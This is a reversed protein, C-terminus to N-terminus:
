NAPCPTPCKGNPTPNNWAEIIRAVDDGYTLGGDRSFDTDVSYGSGSWVDILRQIDTGYALDCSGDTDGCGFCPELWIAPRGEAVWADYQAQTVAATAQVNGIPGNCPMMLGVYFDDQLIAECDGNVIPNLNPEELVVGGRVLAEESVCLNCAATVHVRLLLGSAAPAPDIGKEYLSGLEVIIYGNPDDLPPPNDPADPPAVPSGYSTVNGEEGIQINGPYIDFPECSACAETAEGASFQVADITGADVEIKLAFARPLNSEGTADYSIEAWRDGAGTVTLNVAAMAPSVMLLAVLVGLVKKMTAGQKEKLRSECTSGALYKPKRREDNRSGGFDAKTYELIGSQAIPLLGCLLIPAAKSDAPPPCSQTQNPKNQAYQHLFQTQKAKIPNSNAKNERRRCLCKNEYDKTSVKNINMQANRLNPKNQM